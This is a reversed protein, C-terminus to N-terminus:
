SRWGHGRQGPAFVAAMASQICSFDLLLLHRHPYKFPYPLVEPEQRDFKLLLGPSRAFLGIHGCCSGIRGGSGVPHTAPM